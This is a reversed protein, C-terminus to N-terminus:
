VGPLSIFASTCRSLGKAASHESSRRAYEFAIAESLDYKRKSPDSKRSGTVSIRTEQDLLQVVADTWPRRSGVKPEVVLVTGDRLGVSGVLNRFEVNRGQVSLQRLRPRLDKKLREIAEEIQPIDTAKVQQIVHERFVTQVM